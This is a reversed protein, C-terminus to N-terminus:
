TNNVRRNLVISIVIYNNSINYVLIHEYFQTEETSSAHDGGVEVNGATSGVRSSKEYFSRALVNGNAIPQESIRNM